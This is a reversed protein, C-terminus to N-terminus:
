TRGQWQTERQQAEKDTEDKRKSLYDRLRTEIGLQVRSQDGTRGDRARGRGTGGGGVRVPVSGSRCVM